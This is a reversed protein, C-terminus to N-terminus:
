NRTFPVGIAAPMRASRGIGALLGLAVIYPVMQIVYRSVPLGWGHLRL